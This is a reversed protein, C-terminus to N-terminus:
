RSPMARTRPKAPTRRKAPKVPRSPEAPEARVADEIADLRDAVQDIKEEIGVVLEGLRAIDERTMLFAFAGNVPQDCDLLRVPEAITRSVMYDELTIGDKNYAWPNLLAHEREVVCITGITEQKVGYRHM